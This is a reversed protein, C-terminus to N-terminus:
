RDWPQRCTVGLFSQIDCDTEFRREVRRGTTKYFLGYQNLLYGEKKAKARLRINYEKPGILHLTAFPKENWTAYFVDIPPLKEKPNKLAAVAKDTPDYKINFKCRREGCVLLKTIVFKGTFIIRSLLDPDYKETVVLIDCDKPKDKRRAISGVTFLRFGRTKEFSLHRKVTEAFTAARLADM